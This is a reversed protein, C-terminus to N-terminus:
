QVEVLYFPIELMVRLDNGLEQMSEDDFDYQWQIVINRGKKYYENCIGLISTIFKKSGSNIYELHFRMETKLENSSFYDQIANMVPNYFEFSDEPISRGKVEITGPEISVSPTSRTGEINM